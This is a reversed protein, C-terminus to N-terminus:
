ESRRELLTRLVEVLALPQDLMMHHGTDPMTVLGRCHPLAAVIRRACDANVVLSAGAHVYDVPMTVRALQQPDIEPPGIDRLAPDFCWSWGGDVRCISHRAVHALLYPECNQPPLLRFRSLATAEDQYPRPAPRHSFDPRKDGLFTAYSDLVVAHGILEPILTCAHLLRAGGFSHGVVTDPASGPVHVARLVAALDVVFCDREYAARHGSRGMGSFDLAFVRFHETFFPAIFDWWRSHGLFGHAFVLAAKHTDAANWAAYHVPTGGADVFHSTPTQAVAWQFWEPPADPNM